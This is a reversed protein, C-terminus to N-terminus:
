TAQKALLLDLSVEVSDLGPLLLREAYARYIAACVLLNALNECSTASRGV